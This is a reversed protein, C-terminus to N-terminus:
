SGVEILLVEGEEGGGAGVEWGEEVVVVWLLLLLLLLLLMLTLLVRVGVVRWFGVRGEGWIMIGREREGLRRVKWLRWVWMDFRM